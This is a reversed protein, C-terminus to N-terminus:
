PKYLFGIYSFYGIVLTIGEWRQLCRDNVVLGFVLLSGGVMVTLDVGVGQAPIQLPHVLTAAGLVCLVNFINSGVLNGVVIDGEGKRSAAICSALEPLSTGVAVLSLGIIRESIEFARAIDVAGDVLVHAGGLLMGSSVVVGIVARGISIKGDGFEQAFEAEVSAKAKGRLLIWIYPVLMLLFIVGVHWTLVNGSAIPVLLLGVAIAIPIERKVFQAQICISRFAATLGLILSLNAINSGVVNGFVIGDAGRSSAMLATALEPASTGFAVITLGVVMPSICLATGLQSSFRILWDGGFYLLVVGALVFFGATLM